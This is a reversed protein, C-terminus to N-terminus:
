LLLCVGYATVQVDVRLDTMKGSKYGLRPSMKIAPRSVGFVLAEANSGRRLSCCDNNRILDIGNDTKGMKANLGLPAAHKYCVPYAFIRFGWLPSM